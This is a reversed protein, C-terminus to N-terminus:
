SLYKAEIKAQQSSLLSQHRTAYLRFVRVHVDENLFPAHDNVCARHVDDAYGRHNLIPLLAANGCVYAYAISVDGHDNDLYEDDAHANSIAYHLHCHCPRISM